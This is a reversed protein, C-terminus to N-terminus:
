RENARAAHSARAFIAACRRDASSAYIGAAVPAQPDYRGPACAEKIARTLEDSARYSFPYPALRENSAPGASLTEEADQRLLRSM